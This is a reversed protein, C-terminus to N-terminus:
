KETERLINRIVERLKQEGATQREAEKLHRLYNKAMAIERKYSCEGSRKLSGPLEVSEGFKAFHAVRRADVSYTKRWKNEPLQKMWERIAKTTIKM